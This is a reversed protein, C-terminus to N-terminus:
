HIIAMEPHWTFQVVASLNRQPGGLAPIFFREYQLSIDAFTNKSIEFAQRITLDSQTGGGPLFNNGTKIQRYGAEFRDRPTFWYRTWGEIARADRGEPNGLLYGYNTNGSHYSDNYYLFTGGQDGNFPRTMPAEVRFDLRPIGPVHTLYIGPNIAARRPAALPSPDDDSYADSYVTLWNRLGPLRYRFDFGAKRDGPDSRGVGALGLPSNTSVLNNILSGFTEPHGLGWLISWRTFGMELNETLKFSIKAGNFWPRWTYSQGGLKGMVAEARIDGMYRLIGPLRLPNVLSLRANKAPEANNSFSFPADYSPGWYLSQKGVSIDFDGIRVGAYAEITRFRSTEPKAQGPQVPNADLTSILQRLPESYADEGPAHQYEGRVLAFFRGSEARTIFGEQSNWGQGFPRGFDNSWTQGFHFSDELPRGAIVGNRTYLSDLVISPRTSEEAPFEQELRALLNSAEARIGHSMQEGVDEFAERAEEVQRRCESRTWPRLGSIQSPILGLAALRDLVPYVWSDMPVYMSGQVPPGTQQTPGPDSQTFAMDRWDRTHDRHAVYKGVLFGLASGALVDSPFHQEAGIRSLSVASAAGYVGLQTLWGPYRDAIVSALSWAIAAHHSPFSSDWFSSKELRGAGNDILPRERRAVAGIIETAVLADVGARASLFVSNRSYDDDHRWGWWYLGAPIAALPLLAADSLNAAASRSAANTHIRESLNGTDSIALFAIGASLPLVWPLDHKRIHFPAALIRSEDGVLTASFNELFPKRMQSVFQPAGEGAAHNDSANETAPVQDLQVPFPDPGPQQAM